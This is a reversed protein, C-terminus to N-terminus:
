LGRKIILEGQYYFRVDDTSVGIDWWWVGVEDVEKWILNESM